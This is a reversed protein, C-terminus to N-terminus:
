VGFFEALIIRYNACLVNLNQKKRLVSVLKFMTKGLICQVRDLFMFRYLNPCM